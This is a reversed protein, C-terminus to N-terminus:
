KLFIVNFLVDPEDDNLYVNNDYMFDMKYQMAELWKLFDVDFLVDKYCTPKADDIILADNIKHILVGYNERTQRIRSSKCLTQTILKRSHKMLM